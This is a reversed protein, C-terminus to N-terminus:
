GQQLDLDGHSATGSDFRNSTLVTSTSGLPLSPRHQSLKRERKPHPHPVSGRHRGCARNLSLLGPARGRLRVSFSTLVVSIGKSDRCASCHPRPTISPLAYHERKSPPRPLRAETSPCLLGQALPPPITRLRVPPKYSGSLHVGSLTRPVISSSSASRSWHLRPVTGRDLGWINVRRRTLGPLDSVPDSFNSHTRPPRPSGLWRPLHKWM